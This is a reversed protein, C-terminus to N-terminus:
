DTACSLLPNGWAAGSSAGARGGPNLTRLELLVEQGAYEQLDIWAQYWTAQSARAAFLPLPTGASVKLNVEFRTLVRAGYDFVLTCRDPVQIQFTYSRPHDALLSQMPEGFDRQGMRQVASLVGGGASFWIWQAEMPAEPQGDYTLRLELTRQGPETAQSLPYRLTTWGSSLKRACVSVGDMLLEVSCATFTRARLAVARVGGRDKFSLQAGNLVEAHSSGGAGKVFRGWTARTIGPAHKFHNDSGLDVVLGNQRLDAGTAGGSLLRLKHDGSRLSSTRQRTKQTSGIDGDLIRPLSPPQDICATVLLSTMLLAPITTKGREKKWTRHM